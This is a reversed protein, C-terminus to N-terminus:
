LNLVNQHVRHHEAEMISVLINVTKELQGNANVIVYDFEDLYNLENRATMVRNIFDQESGGRSKLRELWEETNGPLIFISILQPYMKKFKVVGQVDVRLMVDKGSEFARRVQWKPVGKYEQYVISYEMLEDNQIMEEFEAHSVFFYDVGHREGERPPRSAATVIFEFCVGRERLKSLVTDKGAGSLGTVAFFLPQRRYIDLDITIDM